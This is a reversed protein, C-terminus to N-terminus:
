FPLGGFLHSHCGGFQQSGDETGQRSDTLIQSLPKLPTSGSCEALLPKQIHHCDSACKGPSQVLTQHDMM